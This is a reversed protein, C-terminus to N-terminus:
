EQRYKDAPYVNWDHDYDGDLYVSVRFVDDDPVSKLAQELAHRQNEGSGYTPSPSVGTIKYTFGMDQQVVEIKVM